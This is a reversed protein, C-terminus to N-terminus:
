DNIHLISIEPLDLLLGPKSTSNSTGPASSTPHIDNQGSACEVSEVPVCSPMTLLIYENCMSANTKERSSNMNRVVRKFQLVVM